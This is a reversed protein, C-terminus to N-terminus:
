GLGGAFAYQGVSSSATWLTMFTCASSGSQVDRAISLPGIVEGGGSGIVEVAVGAPIAVAPSRTLTDRGGLMERYDPAGRLSTTPMSGRKHKGKPTWGAVPM